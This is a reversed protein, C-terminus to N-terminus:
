ARKVAVTAALSMHRTSLRAWRRGKTPHLYACCGLILEASGIRAFPTGVAKRRSRTARRAARNPRTM